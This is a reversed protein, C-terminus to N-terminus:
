SGLTRDFVAQTIELERPSLQLLEGVTRWTAPPFLRRGPNATPESSADEHPDPSDIM